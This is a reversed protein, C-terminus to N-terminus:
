DDGLESIRINRKLFYNGGSGTGGNKGVGRDFEVFEVFDMRFFFGDM